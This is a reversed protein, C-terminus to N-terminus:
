REERTGPDNTILQDSLSCFNISGPPSTKVVIKVRSESAQRQIEKCSAFASQVETLNLSDYLHVDDLQARQLLVSLDIKAYFQQYTYASMYWSGPVSVPDNVYFLVQDPNVTYVYNTIKGGGRCVGNACTDAWSSAPASLVLILASFLIGLNFDRM